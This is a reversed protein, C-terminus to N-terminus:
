ANPICYFRELAVVSNFHRVAKQVM